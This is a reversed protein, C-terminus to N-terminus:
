SQSWGRGVGAEVGQRRHHVTGGQVTLNMLSKKWYPQCNTVAILFTVLLHHKLVDTMLARCSARPFIPCPLHQHLLWLVPLGTHSYHVTLMLHM